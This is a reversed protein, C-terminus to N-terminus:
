EMRGFTRPDFAARLGEGVFVGALMAARTTALLGDHVMDVLLAARQLQMDALLHNSIEESRHNNRLGLAVLVSAGVAAVMVFILVSSRLSLAHFRSKFSM